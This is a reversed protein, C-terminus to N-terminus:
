SHLYQNRFQRKAMQKAERKSWMKSPALISITQLPKFFLEIGTVSKIVSAIEKCCSEPHQVVQQESFRIVIWGKNLFFTNRNADRPDDWCHTPNGTKYDYPEDIEVDLWLNVEKIAICFDTSYNHPKSWDPIPIEMQPFVRGPFYQELIEGFRKESAGVPADSTGTPLLVNGQMLQALQHLYAKRQEAQSPQASRSLSTSLGLSTSAQTIPKSETERQVQIVTKQRSWSWAILLAGSGFFLGGLLTGAKLIGVIALGVGVWRLWSPPKRVILRPVSTVSQQVSVVPLQHSVANPQADGGQATATATVGFGSSQRFDALLKPILVLPYTAM